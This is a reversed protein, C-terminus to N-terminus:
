SPEKEYEHGDELRIVIEGMREFAKQGPGVMETLIRLLHVWAERTDVGYSGVEEFVVVDEDVELIYGNNAGRITAKM